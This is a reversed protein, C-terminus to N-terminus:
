LKEVALNVTVGGLDVEAGGSKKEVKDALVESAIRKGYM